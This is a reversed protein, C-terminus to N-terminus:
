DKFLLGTMVEVCLKWMRNLVCTHKALIGSASIVETYLMLQTNNIVRISHTPQWTCVSNACLEPLHLIHFWMGLLCGDLRCLVPFCLM